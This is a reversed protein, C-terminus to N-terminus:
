LKSKLKGFFRSYLFIIINSFIIFKTRKLWKMLNERILASSLSTPNSSHPNGFVDDVLLDRHEDVLRNAYINGSTYDLSVHRNKDLRSFDMKRLKDM